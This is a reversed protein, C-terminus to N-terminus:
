TSAEAAEVAQRHHRPEKFVLSFWIVALLSIVACIMFLIPISWTAAIWGAALPALASPLGILLNAM